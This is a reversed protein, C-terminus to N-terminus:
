VVASQDRLAPFPDAGGRDLGDQHKVTAAAGGEPEGNRRGVAAGTRAWLLPRTPALFWVLPGAPLCACGRDYPVPGM